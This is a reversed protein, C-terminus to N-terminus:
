RGAPSEIKDPPTQASKGKMIMRSLVGWVVAVVACLVARSQWGTGPDMARTLTYMLIGFLASAAVTGRWSPVKRIASVNQQRAVLQAYRLGGLSILFSTFSSAVYRDYDLSLFVLSALFSATTTLYLASASATNFVAQQQEDEFTGSWYRQVADAWTFWTGRAGTPGAQGDMSIMGM